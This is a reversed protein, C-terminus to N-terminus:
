QVSCLCVPINTYLAIFFSVHMVGPCYLPTEKM